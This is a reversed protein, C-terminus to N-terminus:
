LAPKCRVAAVTNDIAIGRMRFSAVIADVVARISGAARAAHKWGVAAVADHLRIPTLLALGIWEKCSIRSARQVALKGPVAAIAYDLLFQTLLAVVSRGLIVSDVAATVGIARRCGIAPIAHAITGLLAIVTGPEVHAVVATARALALHRGVTAIANFLARVLLAVHARVVPM